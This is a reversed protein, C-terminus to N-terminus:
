RRKRSGDAEYAEDREVGGDAFYTTRSSVRGDTFVEVSALGGREFYEVAKLREGLKWTVEAAKKGSEFFRQHVGDECVGDRAYRRSPCAVWRGKSEVGGLDFYEIVDRQKPGDRLEESRKNGNLFFTVRKELEGDKWSTEEVVKKGDKEYRREFGSRVGRKWTITAELTGDPRTLREEGDPQGDVFSVTSGSGYASTGAVQRTKLGNKWTVTTNLKETGDYLPVTKEGKFGCWAALVEDDKADPLCSLGTVRGDPLLDLTAQGSPFQRWYRDLGGSPLFEKSWVRSDAKWMAQSELAGKKWTEELGERKGDVLSTRRRWDDRTQTVFGTVKREKVVVDIVPKGAELCKVTASSTGAPLREHASWSFEVKAGDVLCYDTTSTVPVPAREFERWAEDGYPDAEVDVKTKFAAEFQAKARVFHRPEEFAREVTIVGKSLALSGVKGPTGRCVVSRVELKKVLAKGADSQCVRWLYRLPENCELDGDTQDYRIDQNHERLSDGEYRVDLTVGCLLNLKPVVERRARDQAKEPTNSGALLVALALTSVM